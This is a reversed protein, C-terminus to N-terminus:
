SRGKRASDAAREALKGAAQDAAPKAEAAGSKKGRGYVVGPKQVGEVGRRGLRLAAQEPTLGREREELEDLIARLNGLFYKRESESVNSLKGAMEAFNKMLTLLELHAYAASLHRTEPTEQTQQAQLNRLQEVLGLAHLASEPMPQYGKAYKRMTERNIGAADALEDNTLKLRGCIEAIGAAQEELNKAM